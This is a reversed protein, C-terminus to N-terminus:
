VRFREPYLRLCGKSHDKPERLAASEPWARDERLGVDLRLGEDKM